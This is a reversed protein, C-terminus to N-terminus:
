KCIKNELFHNMAERVNGSYKKVLRELYEVSTDNWKDENDEETLSFDMNKSYFNEQLFERDSLSKKWFIEQFDAKLNFRKGPFKMFDKIEYPPGNQMSSVEMDSQIRANIFSLLEVAEVTLSTNRYVNNSKPLHINKGLLSLFGGAIGAPHNTMEEFSLLKINEYGFIDSLKKITASYFCPAMNLVHSMSQELTHGNKIRQQVISRAREMYDRIVMLVEIETNKGLTDILLLKLKKLADTNLHAIGEGSIIVEKDPNSNIQDKFQEIFDKVIKQIGSSDTIGKRAYVHYPNKKNWCIGVFPISHNYIKKELFYFIPYLFCQELLKDSNQGLTFQISTTGTKHPGIHLFVKRRGLDTESNLEM